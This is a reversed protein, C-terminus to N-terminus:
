PAQYNLEPEDYEFQAKTPRGAIPTMYEPEAPPPQPAPAADLWLNTDLPLGAARWPKALHERKVGAARLVKFIDLMKEKSIDRESTTQATQRLTQVTQRLSLRESVLADYELRSMIITDDDQSSNVRPHNALAWVRQGVTVVITLLLLSGGAWAVTDLGINEM